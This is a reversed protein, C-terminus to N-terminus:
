ASLQHVADAVAAADFMLRAELAWARPAPATHHKKWSKNNPTSSM